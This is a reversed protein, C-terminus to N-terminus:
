NTQDILTLFWQCETHKGGFYETREASTDTGNNVHSNMRERIKEKLREKFAAIADRETDRIVEAGTKRFAHPTM